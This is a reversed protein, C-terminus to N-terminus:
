QAQRSAEAEARHVLSDFTIGVRECAAILVPLPFARRGNLYASMAERGIGAADAMQSQTVDAARAAAYLQNALAAELDSQFPTM